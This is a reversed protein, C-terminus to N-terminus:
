KPGREQFYALIYYIGFTIVLLIAGLSAAYEFNGQRTETVVATTLVRTQYQINGGVLMAAGVESVAAGFAVMIGTMVGSRAERLATARVQRASAGLARATDLVTTDVEAVSSLTIGAILPFALIVEAMVMAEVTFLADFTAFPGRGSLLYFIILGAVVPPFGYFTYLISKAIRIGRFKTLGLLTGLPIGLLAGISTAVGSVLLSRLTIEILEDAPIPM